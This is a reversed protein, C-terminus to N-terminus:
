EGTPAPVARTTNPAPKEQAAAPAQFGTAEQNLGLVEYRRLLLAELPERLQPKLGSAMMDWTAQNKVGSWLTFLQMLAVESFERKCFAVVVEKASAKVQPHEVPWRAGQAFLSTLVLEMSEYALERAPRTRLIYDKAFRQGRESQLIENLTKALVNGTLAHVIPGIWKDRSVLPRAKGFLATLWETAQAQTWSQALSRAVFESHLKQQTHDATGEHTDLAKVAGLWMKQRAAAKEEALGAVLWVEIRHRLLLDPDEKLSELLKAQPQELPPRMRLKQRVLELIPIARTPQRSAELAQVWAVVTARLVADTEAGGLAAWQDLCVMTSTIEAEPLGATPQVQTVAQTLAQRAQHDHGAFHFAMATRVATSRDDAGLFHQVRVARDLDPIDEARVKLCNLSRTIPLYHQNLLLRDGTAMGTRVIEPPRNAMMLDFWANAHEMDGLALHGRWLQFMALSKWPEVPSRAVQVWTSIADARKQLAELCAAYKYLCEAKVDARNLYKEYIALAEAPKGVSFFDDAKALPTAPSKVDRERLEFRALSSEVPLLLSFRAKSLTRTLEFIRTYHLPTSGNLSFSLDGNEYRCRLTLHPSRRVEVPVLAYALPTDESMITMVQVKEPNEFDPQYQRFREAQFVRFQVDELQPIILTLGFAKAEQWTEHLEMELEVAGEVDLPSFLTSWTQGAIAPVAHLEGLKAVWGKTQFIVKAAEPTIPGHLSAVTQWATERARWRNLLLSSDPHKKAILARILVRIRKSDEESLRPAELLDEVTHYTRKLVDERLYRELVTDVAHMQDLLGDTLALRDATWEAETLQRNIQSLLNSKKKSWQMRSTSWISIALALIAVAAAGLAWPYRRIYLYSVELLDPNKARIPRGDLFRELDEAMSTGNAYRGEPTKQMARWCIADLEKRPSKVVSCLRPPLDDEHLRTIIQSALGTRPLRGSLLEFLMVGCAHVDTAPAPEGLTPEVQEPALYAVTGALEGDQTLRIDQQWAQNQALGFDLLVPEDGLVMINGPKLDRHTIGSAHAVGVSRAIKAMMQAIETPKRPREKAWTHLPVGDLFDMVLWALDGECGFDHVPVINPHRLQAMVTAENQFRAMARPDCCLKPALFKIAAWRQLERHWAKYVVGMGGTGVFAWREYQPLIKELVEKAIWGGGLWQGSGAEDPTLDKEVIAQFSPIGDESPPLPEPNM